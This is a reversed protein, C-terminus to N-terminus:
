FYFNSIKMKTIENKRGVKDIAHRRFHISSPLVEECLKCTIELLNGELDVHNSREHMVRVTKDPFKDGCYACTFKKKTPDIQNSPVMTKKEMVIPDMLGLEQRPMHETKMHHKIAEHDRPLEKKCDFCKVVQQKTVVNEHKIEIHNSVDTFSKFLKECHPCSYFPNKDNPQNEKQIEITENVFADEPLFEDEPPDDLDQKIQDLDIMISDQDNEDLLQSYQEVTAIDIVSDNKPVNTVKLVVVPKKKVVYSSNETTSFLVSSKPHNEVAHSEFSNEDKSKYACEPCCLFNFEDINEVLWPNRSYAKM